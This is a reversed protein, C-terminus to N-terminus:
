FVSYAWASKMQELVRDLNWVRESNKRSNPDNVRINGDRDMGTLVIFHGTYTFDGPKMSGIVPHHKKLEACISNKVLPVRQVTLGLREAGTSMLEWSTGIGEAWYGSGESYLAMEAPNWRADKTLGSMVMSLCTPGCGTIGIMGDGYSRYGWRKDWQIYLPIGDKTEDGSVDFGGSFNYRNPYDLVFEITEPYKILTEILRDPYKGRNKAIELVRKEKKYLMELEERYIDAGLLSGIDQESSKEGIIERRMKEAEKETQARSEEAQWEERKICAGVAVVIVMVTVFLIRKVTRKRDRNRYM